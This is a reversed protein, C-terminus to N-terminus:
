YACHYSIMLSHLSHLPDSAGMTLFAFKNKHLHGYLSGAYSQAETDSYPHLFFQFIM